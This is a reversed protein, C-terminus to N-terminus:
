RGVDRITGPVGTSGTNIGSKKLMISTEDRGFMNPGQATLGGDGDSIGIVM